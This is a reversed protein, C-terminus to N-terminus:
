VGRNILKKVKRAYSDFTTFSLMEDAGIFILKYGKDPRNVTYWRTDNGFDVGNELDKKIEQFYTM